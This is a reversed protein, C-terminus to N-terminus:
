CLCDILLESGKPVYKRCNCFFRKVPAAVSCVWREAKSSISARIGAHGMSHLRPPTQVKSTKSSKSTQANYRSSTFSSKSFVLAMDPIVKTRAAVTRQRDQAHDQYQTRQEGGYADQHHTSDEHPQCLPNCHRATDNASVPTVRRGQSRVGSNLSRCSRNVGLRM